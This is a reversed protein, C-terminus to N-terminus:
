VSLGPFRLIVQFDNIEEDLGATLGILIKDEKTLGGM